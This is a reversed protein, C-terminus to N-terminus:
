NVKRYKQINCSLNPTREHFAIRVSDETYLQEGDPREYNENRERQFNSMCSFAGQYYYYADHVVAATGELFWKPYQNWEKHIPCFCAFIM